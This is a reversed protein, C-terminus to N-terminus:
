QDEKFFCFISRAPEEAGTGEITCFSDPEKEYLRQFMVQLDETATEPELSFELALIERANKQGNCQKALAGAKKGLASFLSSSQEKTLFFKRTRVLYCNPNKGGGNNAQWSLVADRTTEFDVKDSMIALFCKRNEAVGEAGAARSKGHTLPVASAGHSAMESTEANDLAKVYKEHCDSMMDMPAWNRSNKNTCGASPTFDYVESWKNNWVSLKSKEFHKAMNFYHYEYCGITLNRSTEIIPETSSYLFFRCDICERTRFQGAAIVFTCDKCNRIFASSEIPGTVLTCSTCYDVTLSAVLDLLYVSCSSSEEMLFQQGKMDEKVLTVDKSGSLMFDKMDLSPDKGFTLPKKPASSKPKPKPKPKSDCNGM